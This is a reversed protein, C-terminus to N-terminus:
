LCMSHIYMYLTHWNPDMPRLDRPGPDGTGLGPDEPGLNKPGQTGLGPDEPGLDKPGM